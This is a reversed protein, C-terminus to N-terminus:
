HRFHRRGSFILAVDLADAKAISDKDKISGGPEVIAKIGHKAAYEVCDDMPFFADSALVAGAYEDSQEAQKIAIEVSGIRNMQGAGIGLTQHDNVVVIANSKVHKVVTQGFVLANLEQETPQRKSVVEFDPKGESLVDQEQRLVGGMVSVTELEKKDLRRDFDVTMLRLNKKKALIEYADDDFAPAIIIELFIAHMKRATAADVTRNLVIIGGFISMSDAAYARDWAEEIDDGLGIGCPNMHKLAVVAPQSFEAITKLGADADKINNYSLEKGHLQEAQAISFPVPLVDEYFAAKQHSNEGYRLEQKKNFTMTLTDPFEESIQNGLYQAILADYAATHRFVKLALNQRFSQDNDGADIAALVKPYDAPDVISLVSAFNKASSRLMSPGGIDIQEIAEPLTVGPKQITEKFPYLNVAVLDIPDIEHDALQQMHDPLDRRALLGGHIVPHLTKVRGDLMEPFGTLEEVGTVLLGAEELAKKTGGTSVIRFDRDILGSAFDVIGTKDSVSLLATRMEAKDGKERLGSM